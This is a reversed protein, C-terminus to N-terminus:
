PNDKRFQDIIKFLAKQTEAKPFFDFLASHGEFNLILANELYNFAEKFQGAEILYATIRYYLESEEPLEDLGQTIIDIAKEHAGQEFYIFSWNLWIEKDDPTLHCAEEYASIASITNGIKFSRM